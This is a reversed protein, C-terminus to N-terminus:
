RVGTSDSGGSEARLTRECRAEHLHGNSESPQREKGGDFHPSTCGGRSHKHGRCSHSAALVCRSPFCSAYRPPHAHGNEYQRCLNATGFLSPSMDISTTGLTIHSHFSKAFPSALREDERWQEDRRDLHRREAVSM